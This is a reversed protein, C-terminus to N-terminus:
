GFSTSMRHIKGGVPRTSESTAAPKIEPTQDNPISKVKYNLDRGQASNNIKTLANKVNGKPIYKLASDAMKSLGQRAKDSLFAKGLGSAVKGITGAHDSAGKLITGTLKGALGGTNANLFNMGNKMTKGLASKFMHKFLGMKFLRFIM